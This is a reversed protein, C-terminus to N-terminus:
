MWDPVSVNIVWSRVTGCSCCLVFLNNWIHWPAMHQPRLQGDFRKPKSKFWIHNYNIILFLRKIYKSKIFWADVMRIHLKTCVNEHMSHVTKPTVPTVSIYKRWHQIRREISNFQLKIFANLCIHHLLIFHRHHFGLYLIYLSLSRCLSSILKVFKVRFVDVIIWM